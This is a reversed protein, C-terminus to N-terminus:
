WGVLGVSLAILFQGGYYLPLGLYRNLFETKVFRDRAVFLDSLYFAVAGIIMHWAGPRPVLLNQFATWAAIVMLTIVIVYLSVPILMKGLYPRLWIFIGLSLLIPVLHSYMFWDKARALDSFAIVYMVHGLLFSILGSKFSRNGPIALCVDGILGFVLGVFVLYFYSDVPHPQVLCTICFLISLPTKFGLIIKPNSSKEGYLLGALLFVAPILLLSSTM